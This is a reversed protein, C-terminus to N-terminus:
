GKATQAQRNLDSLNLDKVVVSSVVGLRASAGDLIQKVAKKAEQLELLRQKVRGLEAEIERDILDLESVATQRINEYTTKQDNTLM